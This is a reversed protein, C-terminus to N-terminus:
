NVRWDEFRTKDINIYFEAQNVRYSNEFEPKVKYYFYSTKNSGFYINFNKKLVHFTKVSSDLGKEKITVTVFVFDNSDGDNSIKSYEKIIVSQLNDVAYLNSKTLGSFYILAFLLVTGILLYFPNKNMIESRTTM